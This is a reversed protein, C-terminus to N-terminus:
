IPAQQVGLGPRSCAPIGPLGGDVRGMDWLVLTIQDLHLSRRLKPGDALGARQTVLVLAWRPCCRAAVLLRLRVSIVCAGALFRAAFAASRAFGARCLPARCLRPVRPAPALEGKGAGAWAGQSPLRAPASSPQVHNCSPFSSAAVTSTSSQRASCSAGSVMEPLLGAGAAGM